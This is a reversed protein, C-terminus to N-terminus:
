ALLRGVDSISGRSFFLLLRVPKSLSLNTGYTGGGDCLDSLIKETAAAAAAAVFNALVTSLRVPGSSRVEAAAAAPM